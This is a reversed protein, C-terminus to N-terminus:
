RISSTRTFSALAKSRNAELTEPSWGQSQGMQDILYNVHDRNAALIDPHNFNAAAQAGAIAIGSQTTQDQYAKHQTLEHTDLQESLHARVQPAVQNLYLQRAQADPIGSAITQVGQDFQPLYKQDLGFANKGAQAFAGNQPDTTLKLSLSQTQNHADTVMTQRAQAQVQDHVGQLVDAAQEIGQGVQGGFAQPNAEDPLRPYPRGPLGEPTVNGPEALLDM